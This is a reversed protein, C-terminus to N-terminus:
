DAILVIATATALKRDNNDETWMELSVLKGEDTDEVSAIKGQATVVTNKLNPQAWQITFNRIRGKEGMWGRILNHLYSTQLNGMGFAGPMGSKKGAEDDMHHPVFEDMVAAFRNWNELGTERVFPPLEAGVSLDM